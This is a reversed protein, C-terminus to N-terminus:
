TINCHHAIHRNADSQEAKGQYTNSRGQTTRDLRAKNRRAQGQTPKDTDNLTGTSPMLVCTKTENQRGPNHEAEDQRRRLTDRGAISHM